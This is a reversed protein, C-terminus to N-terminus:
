PIAIIMVCFVGMPVWVGGVGVWVGVWGCGWGCVGGCM